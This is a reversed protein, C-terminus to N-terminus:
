MCSAGHSATYPLTVEYGLQLVHARVSDVSFLVCVCYRLWAILWVKALM